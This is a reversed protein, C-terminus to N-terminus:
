HTEVCPWFNAVIPLKCPWARRFFGACYSFYIMVITEFSHSFFVPVFIGWIYVKIDIWKLICKTKLYINKLQNKVHLQWTRNEQYILPTVQVARITSMAWFNSLSQKGEYSFEFQECTDYCVCSYLELWLEVCNKAAAIICSHCLLRHSLVAPTFLISCLNHFPVLWPAHPSHSPLFPRVHQIM